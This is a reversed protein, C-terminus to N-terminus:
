SCHPLLPLACRGLWRRLRRRRPPSVAPAPSPAARCHLAWSSASALRARPIRQARAPTMGPTVREM